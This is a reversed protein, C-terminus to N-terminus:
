NKSKLIDILEDIGIIQLCKEVITENHESLIEIFDRNERLEEKIQILEVLVAEELRFRDVSFEKIFREALDYDVLKQIQKLDNLIENKRKEEENM